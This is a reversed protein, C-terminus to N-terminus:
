VLSLVGDREGSSKPTSMSTSIDLPDELRAAEYWWIRGVGPGTPASLARLSATKQLLPVCPAHHAQTAFALGELGVFGGLSTVVCSVRARAPRLARPAVPRAKESRRNWSFLDIDFALFLFFVCSFIARAAGAPVEAAAVLVAVAEAVGGVDRVVVPHQRAHIEHTTRRQLPSHPRGGSGERRAGDEWHHHARVNAPLNSYYNSETLASLTNFSLCQLQGFASM